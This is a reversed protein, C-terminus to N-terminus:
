EANGVAFLGVGDSEASCIYYKDETEYLKTPLMQWNGDQYRYLVLKEPEVKNQETWSKDVKFKLKPRGVYVPNLNTELKFFVYVNEKLQEPLDTEQIPSKSSEVGIKIGASTQVRTFFTLESINRDDLEVEAKTITRGASIGIPTFRIDKIKNTIASAEALQEPLVVDEPRVIKEEEAYVYKRTMTKGFRVLLSVRHTNGLVGFPVFAYDMQIDNMKFGMGASIGSSAGPESGYLRFGYGARLALMKMLLYEAGASFKMYNDISQNIDFATTLKKDLLRYACGAKFNLPLHFGKEIFKIKPGINQVAFGMSLGNGTKILKGTRYLGALDLAAGYAEEVDIKQKILKLGMGADLGRGVRHAYNAVAAFDYSRFYWEPSTLPEYPDPVGEFQEGLGTRGEIDKKTYLGIMGFALANKESLPHVYGLFEHQIQEFWTNHVGAIERKDIQLLGAPNWYIAYADDAVAVYSSGMSVPRAGIGIKLFAASTSGANSRIRAAYLCHTLSYTLLHTLFFILWINITKSQVKCEASQVLKIPKM